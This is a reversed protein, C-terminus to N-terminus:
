KRLLMNQALVGTTDPQLGTLFSVRSPNCVPYQCYARDFKVGMGALRDINPTQVVKDGYCGLHTNLDDSIILLVNLRREAAAAFMAMALLVALFSAKMSRMMVPIVQHSAM